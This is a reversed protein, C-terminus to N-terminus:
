KLIHTKKFIILLIPTPFIATTSFVSKEELPDLVRHLEIGLPIEHGKRTPVAIMHYLCVHM